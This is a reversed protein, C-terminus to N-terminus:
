DLYPLPYYGNVQLFDLGLATKGGRAQSIPRSHHQHPQEGKRGGKRCLVCSVVESHM